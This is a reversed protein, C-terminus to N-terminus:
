VPGWEIGAQKGKEPTRKQRFAHPLRMLDDNKQVKEGRGGGDQAM